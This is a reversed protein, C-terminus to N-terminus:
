LRVTVIGRRSLEVCRETGDALEIRAAKAEGPNLVFLRDGRISAHVGPTLPRAPIKLKFFRHVALIAEASPACGLVMLAGRGRQEVYGTTYTRTTALQMQRRQDEDIRWALQRAAIPQGPPRCYNYVPRMTVFKTGDPLAVEINEANAHSTGDPIACGDILRQFCVLRGGGEVYRWLREPEAIDGAALLLPPPAFDHDVDVYDHEVGMDHLVAFLPDDVASKGIQAIQHYRWSWAVGFSTEPPPLDATEKLDRAAAAFVEGLEPRIVGRENIPSGYWNDRNVLMYWNWGRVGSAIATSAILRYHEPSYNPDAGHWVGAGFELISPFKSVCRLLRLRERFYRFDSRCENSPYPDFGFVDCEDQFDRWNQADVGPWTNLVIPVTCGHKRFEAVAWRAYETAIDYRYQCADDIRRILGPFAHARSGQPTVHAAMWPLAEAFSAYGTGWAANMAAVSEYRRTLWAAFGQDEGYFHPMPDIENDAQLAVILSGLHPRLEAMVAAIWHAAKRRFEPDHKPLTAAHDPVGLNRWESYYFPGPRAFVKIGRRDLEALFRRLQAFDYEGERTEHYQWMVYMGVLNVGLQQVSDLIPGWYREQVRGYHIEGAVFPVSFPSPTASRM